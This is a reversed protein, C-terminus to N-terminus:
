EPDKPNFADPLPFPSEYQRSIVFIHDSLPNGYEDRPCTEIDCTPEPPLTVEEWDCIEQLAALYARLTQHSYRALPPIPLNSEFKTERAIQEINQLKMRVSDKKIQPLHLATNHVMDTLTRSELRGRSALLAYRLYHRCCILDEEFTWTHKEM